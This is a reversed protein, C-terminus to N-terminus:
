PRSIFGSRPSRAVFIPRIPSTPAAYGIRVVHDTADKRPVLIKQGDPKGDIFLLVRHSDRTYTMGVEHWLDDNIKQSSAVYGVWGLDFVLYGDRVFLAKGDLVWQGQPAAKSFITGGRRTKIRAFITYDRNTMDFGTSGAVTVSTRGNFM